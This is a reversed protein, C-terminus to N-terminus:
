VTSILIRLIMSQLRRYPSSSPAMMWVGQVSTVLLNLDTFADDELGAQGYATLTSSRQVNREWRAFWLPSCFVDVLGPDVSAGEEGWSRRRGSSGGACAAGGWSGSQGVHPPRHHKM